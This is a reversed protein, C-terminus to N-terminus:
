EDDWEDRLERIRRVAEEMTTGHNYREPHADFDELLKKLNAQVDIEADNEPLGFFTRLSDDREPTIEVTVRASGTEPLGVRLDEPLKEVPYHELVIKNM